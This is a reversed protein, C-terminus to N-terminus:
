FDKLFIFVYLTSFLYLFQPLILTKIVTVKRILSLGRTRWCNLSQEVSSLKKKFNLDYLTDLNLSFKVGLCSFSSDKWTLGKDSYPRETSGKLSGLWVSESEHRKQFHYVSCM